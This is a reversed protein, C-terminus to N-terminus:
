DASPATWEEIRIRSDTIGMGRLLRPVDHVLAEPGCVFCLTEADEVASELLARDIRGRGGDWAEGTHRTTTPFYHLRSNLSLARLEADFALEEPVRASYVLALRWDGRAGLAHHVMSRLPAIGSGGAIFLFRREAPSSPFSFAGLPGEVDVQMGPAIDALHPGPLGDPGLGILFELRGSRVADEPGIAISYPRREPQGHLGVLAAQGAAFPLPADLAM